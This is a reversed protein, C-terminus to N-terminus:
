SYVHSQTQEIDHRLVTVTQGHVRAQIGGGPAIAGLPSGDAGIVASVPVGEDQVLWIWSLSLAFLCLLTLALSCLLILRCSRHSARCCQRPTPQQAQLLRMNHLIRRARRAVDPKLEDAAIEELRPMADSRELFQVCQIDGSVQRAARPATPDARAPSCSRARAPARRLRVAQRAARARVNSMGVVGYSQITPDPSSLASLLIHLVGPEKLLDAGGFYTLNAMCSMCWRLLTGSTNPPSACVGGVVPPEPWAHLETILAVLKWTIGHRKLLEYHSAIDSDDIKTLMKALERLAKERVEISLSPDLTRGYSAISSAPSSFRSKSSALASTVSGVMGTSKSDGHGRLGTRPGLLRPSARVVSGVLGLGGDAQPASSGGFSWSRAPVCPRLLEAGADYAAPAPEDCVDIAVAGDM